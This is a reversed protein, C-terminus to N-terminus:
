DQTVQHTAVIEKLSVLLRTGHRRYIDRVDLNKAEAVARDEFRWLKVLWTGKGVQKIMRGWWRILQCNLEERPSMRISSCHSHLVHSWCLDLLMVGALNRNPWGITAREHWGTPWHCGWFLCGLGGTVGIHGRARFENQVFLLWLWHTSGFICSLLVRM